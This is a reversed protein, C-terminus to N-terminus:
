KNIEDSLFIVIRKRADGYNNRINRHLYLLAQQLNLNGHPSLPYDESM